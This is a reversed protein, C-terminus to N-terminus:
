QDLRRHLPWRRFLRRLLSHRLMLQLHLTGNGLFRRLLAFRDRLVSGKCHIKLQQGLEVVLDHAPDRVVRPDIIRHDLAAVVIIVQGM